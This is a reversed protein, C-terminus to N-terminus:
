ESVKGVPVSVAVDGFYGGLNVGVDLGVIDGEAFRRDSPLGHVIEENISICTAFRYGRYGKFAPKAKAKLIMEEVFRDIQRTKVGAKVKERAASIVEGALRCAKRIQILDEETKIPIM